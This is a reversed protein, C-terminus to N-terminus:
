SLFGQLAKEARSKWTYCRADIKAKSALRQRREPDAFLGTLAQQWADIDEPPCFVANEENLVEHFVPLDSSVIVGGAAMYDFMKMPSCIEASNGGSSGSISKQYPMLLVDAATLYLPLRSNEVFGCLHVNAAGLKSLRERWEAVGSPMGGVWLFTVEPLRQALEVLLNMGRGPYFHGSYLALPGAPLNLEGRIAAAQPLNSYCELDTGNPAVQVEDLSFVPRYLVDLKRRLAETIVLLRKKGKQRSFQRFLLPGVRGTPLDHLELIVPMGRWLALVGAQLMWTYLLDAGWRQAEGVAKLALDYRRWIRKSPVRRVEFPTQIGYYGALNNWDGSPSATKDGPIWLSLAGNVASLASCTKMVQISNAYRSPVLSPALAAIKM